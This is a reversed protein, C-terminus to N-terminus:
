RELGSFGVVVDFGLLPPLFPLGVGDDLVLESGLFPYVMRLIIIIAIAVNTKFWNRRRAPIVLRGRRQSAITPVSANLLAVDPGLKASRKLRATIRKTFTGRERRSQRFM